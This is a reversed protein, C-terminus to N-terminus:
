GFSYATRDCTKSGWEDYFAQAVLLRYSDKHADSMSAPVTDIVEVPSLRWAYFLGIAIGIVLGTLLYLPFEQKHPKGQM